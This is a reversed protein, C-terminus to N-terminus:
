NLHKIQNLILNRSADIQQTIKDACTEDTRIKEWNDAWVHSLETARSPMPPPLLQSLDNILSVYGWGLIPNMSETHNSLYRTNNVVLQLQGLQKLMEFAAPRINFNEETVQLRWANYFLAAIAIVLSIIAILNNHVQSGISDQSM